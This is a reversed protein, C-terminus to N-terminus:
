LSKELRTALSRLSRAPRPGDPLLLGFRIADRLQATSAIWVATDSGTGTGDADHLRVTGDPAFSGVRLRRPLVSRPDAPTLVEGIWRAAFTMSSHARKM